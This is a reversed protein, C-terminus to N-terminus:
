GSRTVEAWTWAGPRDTKACSGSKLAAEWACFRIRALACLNLLSHRCLRWGVARGGALDVACQFTGGGKSVHHRLQEATPLECPTHWSHREQIARPSLTQVRLKTMMSRDLATVLVPRSQRLQRWPQTPGLVGPSSSGDGYAVADVHRRMWAGRRIPTGSRTSSTDEAIIRTGDVHPMSVRHLGPMPM